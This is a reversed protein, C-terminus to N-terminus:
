KWRDPNRKRKGNRKFGKCERYTAVPKWANINSPVHGIVVFDSSQMGISLALLAMHANLVPRFREM